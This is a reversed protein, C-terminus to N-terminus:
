TLKVEFHPCDRVKWRGGWTMGLEEGIKGMQAYLAKDNWAPKGGVM